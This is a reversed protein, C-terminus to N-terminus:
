RKAARFGAREAAEVTRFCLTPHTQTYAQAEPWHYIGSRGNGKIPFEEPCDVSGDGMVVDDDSEALDGLEAARKASLNATVAALPSEGTKTNAPARPQSREALDPAVSAESATAQPEGPHPSPAPQPLVEIYQTRRLVRQTVLAVVAGTLASVVVVTLLAALSIGDRARELRRRDDSLFAAM